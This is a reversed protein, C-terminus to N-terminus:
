GGIAGGFMAVVVTVNDPGGRELALAVLADCAAQGSASAELVRAIDPEPVVHTLGDTCLVLRDGPALTLGYLDAEVADTPGGVAQTLVHSLRHAEADEAVEREAVEPEEEAEEM